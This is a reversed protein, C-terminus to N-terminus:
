LLWFLITSACFCVYLDFSYFLSELFLGVNIHNILRCCLHCSYVTPFLYGRWYITNPFSSLKVYAPSSEWVMCSFLNLISQLGLHSVQFWLSRSSFMLLISKSMTMTITEQIQRKLFPFFILYLCVASCWILFSNYLWLYSDVFHFPFRSFSSIQLCYIQYPTGM